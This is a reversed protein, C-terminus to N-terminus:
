KALKRLVTVKREGHKAAEWVPGNTPLHKSRLWAAMERNSAKRNARAEATDYLWTMFGDDKAPAAKKAVAPTPTDLGLQALAQAVGAAVASEIQATTINTSM